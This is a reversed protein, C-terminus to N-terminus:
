TRLRPPGKRSSKDDSGRPREMAAALIGAVFSDRVPRDLSHLARAVRYDDPDIDPYMPEEGLVLWAVCVRLYHAARVANAASISKTEQTFWGSVSPPKLGWAKALGAQTLKHAAASDLALQLREALFPQKSLDRKM